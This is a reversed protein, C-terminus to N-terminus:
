IGAALEMRTDALDGRESDRCGCSWDLSHRILLFARRPKGTKNISSALMSFPRFDLMLGSAATQLVWTLECPAM